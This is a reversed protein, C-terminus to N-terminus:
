DADEEEKRWWVRIEGETMLKAFEASIQKPEDMRAGCNPCYDSTENSENPPELGCVSCSVWGNKSVWNGHKVPDITPLQALTQADNDIIAVTYRDIPDDGFHNSYVEENHLIADIAAQRSILDTM